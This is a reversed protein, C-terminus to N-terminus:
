VANVIREIVGTYTLGSRLATAVFGSDPSICPNANIELVWPKGEGDVRFDVRAYGRLGFLQWCRRASEELRELLPRDAETFDFSHVTHQFEFSGEDWKARYDVLKPRGEPFDVFRMEPVALLEGALLSLNFERGDIYREAFFDGGAERRRRELRQLLEEPRAATTLSEDNLWNSAHEWASKILFRENGNWPTPIPDGPSLWEPTAIGALRLIRKAVLKNSTLMLAEKSCGSYPLRLHDLLSPALQILQGDGAVSESLNFVLDPSLRRLRKAAAAVDLSFPLRFTKCGLERLAREVAEVQILVDREDPPSHEDVYNFLIVVREPKM